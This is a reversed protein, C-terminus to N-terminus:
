CLECHVSHTCKLCTNFCLLVNLFIPSFLPLFHKILTHTRSYKLVMTQGAENLEQQKIIKTTTNKRMAECSETQVHHSQLANQKFITFMWVGVNYSWFVKYSFVNTLKPTKFTLTKGNLVTIAKKRFTYLRETLIYDIYTLNYIARFAHGSWSM